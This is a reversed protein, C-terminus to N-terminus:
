EIKERRKDFIQAMPSNILIQRATEFTPPSSRRNMNRLTVTLKDALKQLFKSLNNEIEKEIKRQIIGKFLKQLMPLLIDHNLTAKDLKMEMESIKFRCFGETIRPVSDNSEQLMKFIMRLRAGKFQLSFRGSDSIEIGDKKKFYFEVDKLETTIHDLQIILNTKSNKLQLEKLSVNSCSEIHFKINEPLIDYLCMVINDIWFEQKRTSSAIRPIPIYKLSDAIIPLLVSQLNSIMQTDIQEKGDPDIYTFDSRIIGAQHRLSQIFQDNEFQKLLIRTTKLFSKFHAESFKNMLTRGRETLERSRQKFDESRVYEESKSTLIFSKVDSFYEQLTPNTQITNMIDKLESKWQELIEDGTFTAVLAETEKIVPRTKESPSFNLSKVFYDLLSFISDIGEHYSPERAMLLFIKQIDSYIVDLNEEKEFERMEEESSSSSSSTTPVSERSVKEQAKNRAIKSGLNLCDM